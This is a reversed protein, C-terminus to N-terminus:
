VTTLMSEPLALAQAAGYRDAQVAATALGLLRAAEAPHPTLVCPAAPRPWHPLHWLADADLVCPLGLALAAVPAAVALALLAATARIM